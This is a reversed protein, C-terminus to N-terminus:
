AKVRITAIGGASCGKYVEANSWLKALTKNSALGNTAMLMGTRKDAASSDDYFRVYVDSGVSLADDSRVDVYVDRGIPVQSVGGEVSTDQYLFNGSSDQPVEAYMSVGFFTTTCTNALTVGAQGAGGTVAGTSFHVDTEPDAVVTITRNSAGGVTATLIGDLAQIEAALAQMTALHSTAYTETYAVTTGNIIINGALVNSTVLDGDLVLTTQNSRLLSAFDPDSSSLGLVRGAAIGATESVTKSMIEDAPRPYVNRGEYQANNDTTVATQM